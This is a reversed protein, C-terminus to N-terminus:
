SDVRVFHKATKFPLDEETSQYILGPFSHLRMALWTYQLLQLTMQHRCGGCLFLNLLVHERKQLIPCALFCSLFVLRVEYPASLISAYEQLVTSPLSVRPLRSVHLSVHKSLVSNPRVTNLFGKTGGYFVQGPRVRTGAVSSTNLYVGSKKEVFYPM